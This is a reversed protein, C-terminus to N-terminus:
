TVLTTRWVYSACTKTTKISYFNFERFKTCIDRVGSFGLCCFICVTYSYCYSWKCTHKRTYDSSTLVCLENSKM